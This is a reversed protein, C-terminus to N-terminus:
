KRDSFPDTPDEAEEAPQLSPESIHRQCDVWIALAFLIVAFSALGGLLFSGNTFRHYALFGFVGMMILFFVTM